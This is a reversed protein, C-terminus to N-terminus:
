YERAILSTKGKDLLMEKVANQNRGYAREKKTKLNM